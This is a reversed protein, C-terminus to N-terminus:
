EKYVRKIPGNDGVLYMRRWNSREPKEAVIIRADPHANRIFSSAASGPSDLNSLSKPRPQEHKDPTGTFDGFRLLDEGKSFNMGSDDSQWWGVRTKETIPDIGSILFRVNNGDTLFDGRGIPLGSELQGVWKEGNWTFHTAHKPGGIQWGIDEGIYAAIHPKGQADVKTTGNFTWLDETDVVLAKEDAVEKILPIAVREDEVNSWVNTQTNFKVFYLNKRETSHGGRNNRPADKDWCYHYDFGIVIESNSGKAAYAYWSDTGLDDARRKYKLFSIPASFTRGNDVSKQYVWDSRHAGHRYFLYIDGNDMKIAQNYTGFPPINDLDEWSSIDLAKSSVAHKNEGSHTGAGLANKGHLAQVGGHGGYFIHIFGADDIILTPKGHSDIKKSPDKGLVSTGAKFPGTWTKTNHDYAAVYPDELAGQYAVYTVGNLHEGSPHQVVAVGEGWGNEAFFEKEVKGNANKALGVNLLGLMSISLLIHKIPM